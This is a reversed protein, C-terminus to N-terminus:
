FEAGPTTAVPKSVNLGLDPRLRKLDPRKSAARAQQSGYQLNFAYVNGDDSGVYVIGNAVTPSSEVYAGTTYNWLREGTSM